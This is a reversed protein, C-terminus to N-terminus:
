RIPHSQIQLSPQPIPGTSKTKPKACHKKFNPLLKQFHLSKVYFLIEPKEQFGPLISQRKQLTTFTTLQTDAGQEPPTDARDAPTEM